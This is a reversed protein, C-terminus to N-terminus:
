DLPEHLSEDFDDYLWAEKPFLTRHQREFRRLRRFRRKGIELAHQMYARTAAHARVADEPLSSASLFEGIDEIDQALFPSSVKEQNAFIGDELVDRLLDAIVYFYADRRTVPDQVAGLVERASQIFTASSTLESELQSAFPGFDLWDDLAMFLADSMSRAQPFVFLVRRLM